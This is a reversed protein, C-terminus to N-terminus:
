SIVLLEQDLGRGAATSPTTEPRSLIALASMAAGAGTAGATAVIKIYRKRTQLIIQVAVIKGDDGADPLSGDVSFDAGDIDDYTDTAGDDNSEQIKLATLADDMVGFSILLALNNFGLTDIAIATATAGDVVAPRIAQVFKLGQTDHM